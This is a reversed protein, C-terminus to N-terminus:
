VSYAKGLSCMENVIITFKSYKEDITEGENIKFLEFKQVGIDIRTEKVHSTGEHHTQLTDWVKKTTDYEDVRESEERSLACSLILQAKSNLLVKAKYEITWEVEKKEACTSDNQDIRQIFNEYKIIRWMGTDQSKLFLKMKISPPRNSSGGESIYKAIPM